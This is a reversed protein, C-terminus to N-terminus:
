GESPQRVFRAALEVHTSWRFQGVPQVWELQWGQDVMERADRAFSAPNCSVYAVSAVNASALAAAQDRAGARPPDLVIADFRDLEAKTLPRRYLDRHEAFVPRGQANAAGKLSLIADRAGEAAYVKGPLALAFTGLGAFLDATTRPRGVAERVASVLAAEGDRTAQLFAGPPLPVGVGGLTVTVPEPEWRTEPGLGDDVAFRAVGHRECFGIITEAAELGDPSFNTVLVDAGQDALTLHVDGRRKFGLRQLLTRLPAVLAFLMPDLIHCEAIDVIAHSKEESFGIMVRGGKAEAHLTARRRSRPPSVHPARLPAALGQADLASAVRDTVFAAYSEDDLHQLQCGGCRPFHGCPPEQHHLGPTVTGDAELLDGPAAFAAHRGNETVGDGRAAVRIIIDSM